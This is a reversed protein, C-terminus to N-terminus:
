HGIGKTRRIYWPTIRTQSTRCNSSTRTISIVRSGKEIKGVHRTWPVSEKPFSVACSQSFRKFMSCCILKRRSNPLHGQVSNGKATLLVDRTAHKGSGVSAENVKDDILIVSNTAAIQRCNQM